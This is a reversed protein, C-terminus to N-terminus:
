LNQEKNTAGPENAAQPATIGVFRLADNLSKDHQYPLPESKAFKVMDATQLIQRLLSEGEPSYARSTTYADLTQDSTMETSPIGYGSALYQRLIDTLLTHYEKVKGQQWLQRQRLQELDHLAQEHPPLPPPPPAIPLLGLRARHRRVVYVIGIVLAVLLLAVLVWVSVEWFTYPQRMIKAIDRIDTSSTDVGTVDQVTLLVSDAGIHLWHKGVEFSTLLTHVTTGNSSDIWQRVPVIGNNGLEQMSPYGPSPTVVLLIQDGLRLTTTDIHFKYHPLTATSDQAKGAICGIMLLLLFCIRSKM